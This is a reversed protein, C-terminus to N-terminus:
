GAAPAAHTTKIGVEFTGALVPRTHVVTGVLCLPEEEFRPVFAEIRSGVGIAMGVQVALGEQSWNVAQGIRTVWGGKAADYVRVRCPLRQPCRPAARRSERAESEVRQHSGLGTQPTRHLEDHNHTM